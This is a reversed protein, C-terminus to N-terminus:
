RRRGWFRWWPRKPRTLREIVKDTGPWPTEAGLIDALAAEYNERNFAEIRFLYQEATMGHEDRDDTM